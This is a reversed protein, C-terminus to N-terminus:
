RNKLGESSIKSYFNKVEFMFEEIDKQIEQFMKNEMRQMSYISGGLAVADAGAGLYDKINTPNVGGVAMLKIKDFPGKVQKFYNPGMQSAPFIKVMTAGAEWATQIETPTLAGPFYTINNDRCYSAVGSDFNPAVIFQAGEACARKAEEVSLVTGAGIQLQPYNKSIIKILSFCNPTNLTIELFRLGGSISAEVVGELSEEKVGRIIGIVPESEFRPLDFAM